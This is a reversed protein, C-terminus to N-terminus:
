TSGSARPSCPIATIWKRCRIGATYRAVSIVDCDWAIVNMVDASIRAQLVEGADASAYVQGGSTGFYVGCKDLSDVAM